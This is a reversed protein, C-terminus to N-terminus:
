KCDRPEITHIKNPLRFCISRTKTSARSLRTNALRRQFCANWIALSMIMLFLSCVTVLTIVILEQMYPTFPQHDGTWSQYTKRPYVFWWVQLYGGCIAILIKWSDTGRLWQRVLSMLGDLLLGFGSHDAAGEDFISLMEDRFRRRFAPPHMWLIFQYLSRTM